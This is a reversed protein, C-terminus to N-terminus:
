IEVWFYDIAWNCIILILYNIWFRVRRNGKISNSNCLLSNSFWLRSIKWIRGIKRMEMRVVRWVLLGVGNMLFAARFEILVNWFGKYWSKKTCFVRRLRFLLGIMMSLFVGGAMHAYGRRLTCIANRPRTDLTRMIIKKRCSMGAM